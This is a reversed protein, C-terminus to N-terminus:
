RGVLYPNYSPITTQPYGPTYGMTPLGGGYLGANPNYGSMPGPVNAQMMAMDVAGMPRQMQYPNYMHGPIAGPMAGGRLTSLLKDESGDDPTVPAVPVPPQQVPIHQPAVQQAPQKTDVVQPTINATAVRREIDMATPINKVEASYAKVSNVDEESITIETYGSDAVEPDVDALIRNFTNIRNMLRVYLTMLAMFAPSYKDESGISIVKNEDMDVLIFEFVKSYIEYDKPRLKVGAVPVGNAGLVENYINNTFTALRNYKVGNYTASKKLYIDVVNNDNKLYRQYIEMWQDITKQDVIEKMNQKKVDALSALFTNIELSHVKKQLATNNAVKLLLLGLMMISHALRKEVVSKTKVLTRNDGKVVNEDIPNYLVKLIKIEGGTDELMTDIAEKTPLCLPLEDQLVLTPKSTGPIYVYGEDDYILGLSDLTSKYFDILM